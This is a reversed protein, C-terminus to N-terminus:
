IQESSFEGYIGTLLLRFPLDQVIFLTGDRNWGSEPSIQVFGDVFPEAVDDYTTVHREPPRDGNVLPRYSAILRLFVKNWRKKQHGVNGKSGRIIMPMTTMRQEYPHGASIIHHEAPLEITGNPAVIRAPYHFGDAIVDVTDSFFEVDSFDPFMTAGATYDKTKYCDLFVETDDEYDRLKKRMLKFRNNPNEDLPDFGIAWIESRGQNEAAVASKIIYRDNTVRYWGVAPPGDEQRQYSCCVIEGNRLTMWVASYPNRAFSMSAIGSRTIHEATFTADRSLWGYEIWRYWMSRLKEFDGTVYVVENGVMVPKVHSSGYASQHQVTVDGPQLLNNAAQVIIEGNETGILLNVSGEIWEIKGHQAIQFVIGSDAESGATLDYLLNSKSSRFTDPQDKTGAWWSRGQYFTMTTPYNGPTASWEAPEAVFVIDAFTATDADTDIVLMAPPHDASLIVLEHGSPEVYGKFLHENQDPGHLEEATWATTAEFILKGDKDYLELTNHYLAAVYYKSRSYNIEMLTVSFSVASQIENMYEFGPRGMMPGHADPVMNTAERVGDKFESSSIRAETLPSVEGVSFDDIILDM